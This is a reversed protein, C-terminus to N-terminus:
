REVEEDLWERFHKTEEETKDEFDCWKTATEGLLQALEDRNMNVVRDYNTPTNKKGIKWKLFERIESCDVEFHNAIEEIRKNDFYNVQMQMIKMLDDRWSYIEDYLSKAAFIGRELAGQDKDITFTYHKEKKLPMAEMPAWSECSDTPDIEPADKQGFCRYLTPWGDIETRDCYKCYRCSKIESM